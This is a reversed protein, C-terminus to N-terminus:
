TLFYFMVQVMPAGPQQKQGEQLKKKQTLGEDEKKGLVVMIRFKRNIDRIKRKTKHACM